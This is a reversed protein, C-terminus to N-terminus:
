CSLVEQVIQNTQEFRYKVKNAAQSISKNFDSDEQMKQIFKEKLIEKNIILKEIEQYNLQSLIVSWAEFLAKNVPSSSSKRFATNGFINYAAEMSIMFKNKLEEILYDNLKNLKEMAENLFYNRGEDVPYNDYHTLVFAIFGIM